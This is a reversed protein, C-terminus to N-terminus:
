LGKSDSSQAKCLLQYSQWSQDSQNVIHSYGTVPENQRCLVVFLVVILFLLVFGCVVLGVIVDVGVCLLFFYSCNNIEDPLLHLWLITLDM